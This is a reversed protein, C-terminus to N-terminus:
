WVARQTLTLKGHWRIHLYPVVGVIFLMQLCEHLYFAVFEVIWHNCGQLRVFERILISWKLTGGKWVEAIVCVM